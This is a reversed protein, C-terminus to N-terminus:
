SVLCFRYKTYGWQPWTQICEARYYCLHNTYCHFSSLPRLTIFFHEDEALLALHPVNKYTCLHEDYDNFVFIIEVQLCTHVLRIAEQLVTFCHEYRLQNPYTTFLFKM